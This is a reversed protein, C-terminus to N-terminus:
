AQFADDGELVIRVAIDHLAHVHNDFAIVLARPLRFFLM